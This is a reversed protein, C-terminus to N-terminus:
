VLGVLRRSEDDRLNFDTGAFRVADKTCLWAIARASWEAPIHVSPDLESVPNVGSAKIIIQMDTAVTGPSLGVVCINKDGYELNGSRTLMAVGAKSACYHSWGELASTAAGSSVNVIVGSGQAEMYPIAARMGYYVGNLNIDIVKSWAKPDCDALHAIPELVGANNVIIDVRGFSNKCLEVAAAVDEYVSVDCTIAQAKGGDACIEAAIKEIDDSTRAALIVSVGLKAFERATTAGIGRSAGTIIAAKGALEKM